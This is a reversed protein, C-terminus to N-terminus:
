LIEAKESLESVGCNSENVTIYANESSHLPTKRGIMM